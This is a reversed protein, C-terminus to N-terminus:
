FWVHLINAYNTLMIIDSFAADDSRMQAINPLSEYNVPHKPMQLVYIM